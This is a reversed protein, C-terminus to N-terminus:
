NLAQPLEDSILNINNERGLAHVCILALTPILIDINFENLIFLIIHFIALIHNYILMSLVFNLVLLFRINNKSLAMGVITSIFIFNHIYNQIKKNDTGFKYPLMTKILNNTKQINKNM